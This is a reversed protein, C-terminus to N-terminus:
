AGGEVAHPDTVRQGGVRFVEALEHAHVQELERVFLYELSHQARSDLFSYPFVNESRVLRVAGTDRDPVQIMLVISFDREHLEIRASELPGVYWRLEATDTFAKILPIAMAGDIHLHARDGKGDPGNDQTVRITKAHTGVWAPGLYPPCPYPFRYGPEPEPVRLTTPPELVRRARNV